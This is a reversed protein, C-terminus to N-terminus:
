HGKCFHCGGGRRGDGDGLHSARRHDQLPILSCSHGVATYCIKRFSLSQFCHKNDQAIGPPCSDLLWKAPHNQSLTEWLAATSANVMAVTLELSVCTATPLGRNRAPQPSSAKAGSWTRRETPNTVACCSAKGLAPPTFTTTTTTGGLGVRLCVVTHSTVDM